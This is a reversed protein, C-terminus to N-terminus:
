TFSNHLKLENIPKSNYRRPFAKWNKNGNIKQEDVAAAAKRYFHDIVTETKAEWELKENLSYDSLSFREVLELAFEHILLSSLVELRVSDGLFFHCMFAASVNFLWM